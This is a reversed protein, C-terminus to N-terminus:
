FGVSELDESFDELTMFNPSVGAPNLTITEMNGLIEEITTAGVDNKADLGQKQQNDEARMLNLLNDLSQKPIRSKLMELDEQFVTEDENNTVFSLDNNGLSPKAESGNPSRTEAMFDGFLDSQDSDNSKNAQNTVSSNGLTPIPDVFQDFLSDVSSDNAEIATVDDVIKVPIEDAGFDDFLSNATISTSNTAFNDLLDLKIPPLSIPTTTITEPLQSDSSQDKSPPNDAFDEGLFSLANLTITEMDDINAPVTIEETVDISEPLDIRQNVTETIPEAIKQDSMAQGNSSDATQANGHGNIQSYNSTQTFEPKAPTPPTIVPAITPAIELEEPEGIQQPTTEEIDVTIGRHQIESNNSEEFEQDPELFIKSVLRIKATQWQQGPQLISLNTIVQDGHENTRSSEAIADLLSRLSPNAAVSTFLFSPKSVVHILENLTTLCKVTGVQEDTFRVIIDQYEQLNQQIQSLKQVLIVGKPNSVLNMNQAQGLQGQASNAMTRMANESIGNNVSNAEAMPLSEDLILEYQWALYNNDSRYTFIKVRKIQDVQLIMMGRHIIAVVAKQNPTQAAKLSINLCDAELQAEAHIGKSALSRNILAAIAQPDGQKALDMVSLQAM